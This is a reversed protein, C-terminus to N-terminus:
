FRKFAYVVTGEDGEDAQPDFINYTALLRLVQGHLSQNAGEAHRIAIKLVRDGTLPEEDDKPGRPQGGKELLRIVHGSSSPLISGGDDLLLPEHRFPTDGRLYAIAEMGNGTRYIRKSYGEQELMGILEAKFRDAEQAELDNGFSDPQLAYRADRRVPGIGRSM